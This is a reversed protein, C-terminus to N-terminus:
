MPTRVEGPVERYGVSVVTEVVRQSRASVNLPEGTRRPSLERSICTIPVATREYFETRENIIM